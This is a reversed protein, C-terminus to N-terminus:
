AKSFLRYNAELERIRTDILSCQYEDCNPLVERMEKCVNHFKNVLDSVQQEDAFFFFFFAIVGKAYFAATSRRLRFFRESVTYVLMVCFDIRRSVM